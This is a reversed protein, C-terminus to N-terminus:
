KSECSPQLVVRLVQSSDSKYVLNPDLVSKTGAFVKLEYLLDATLNTILLENLLKEKKAAMTTEESQWASDPKYQVYYFDIQNHFREPRQWQVLIADQSFCTVNVLSPASPASVDTRFKVQQSPEGLFKRSYAAIHAKYWTFPTLDGITHEMVSQPDSLKRTDNLNNGIDHLFIQYGQLIGNPAKPELWRFKVSTDLTKIVSLETPQSPVSCREAPCLDSLLHEM